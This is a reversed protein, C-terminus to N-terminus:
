YHYLNACWYLALTGPLTYAMGVLLTYIISTNPLDFNITCHKPRYYLLFLSFAVSLRNARLNLWNFIVTWTQLSPATIKQLYGFSYLKTNYYLYIKTTHKFLPHAQIFSFLWIINICTRRSLNAAAVHFIDIFCTM